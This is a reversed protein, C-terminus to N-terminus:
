IEIYIMTFPFKVVAPRIVVKKTYRVTLPIVTTKSPSLLQSYSDKISAGAEKCTGVNNYRIKSQKNFPFFLYLLFGTNAM